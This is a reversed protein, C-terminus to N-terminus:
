PTDRTLMHYLSAASALFLCLLSAATFATVGMDVTHVSAYISFFGALLYILVELIHQLTSM